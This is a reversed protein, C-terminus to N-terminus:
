ALLLLSGPEKIDIIELKSKRFIKFLDELLYLYNKIIYSRKAYFFGTRAGQLMACPHLDSIILVGNRKLVRSIESIAKDLKKIHSLVLNFLVLDFEQKKYPIKYLSVIRFECRGRYKKTKDRAKQLMKNSIDIGFVKAGKKLLKLSIRGTGCGVDLIRKNKVNGILKLVEKEELYILSNEDTDYSDSWLDYGKKVSLEVKKM